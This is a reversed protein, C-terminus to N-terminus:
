LFVKSLILPNETSRMLSMALTLVAKYLLLTHNNYDMFQQDIDSLDDIIESLLQIGSIFCTYAYLGVM